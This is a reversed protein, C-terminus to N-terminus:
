KKAAVPSQSQTPNGPAAGGRLENYRKKYGAFRQALEEKENQKSEISKELRQKDAVARALENKLQTSPAKNIKEVSEVRARVDVHRQTAGRLATTLQEIQLDILHLERDRKLDIEKESSYTELLATDQRKQDVAKRDEELKTRATEQERQRRQSADEASETTRRTLGRSDLEKTASGQFEPPVKDGCGIVKGAKDKWCVIKQASAAGPGALLALAAMTGLVVRLSQTPDHM